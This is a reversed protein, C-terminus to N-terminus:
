LMHCHCETRIQDLIIHKNYILMRLWKASIQSNGVKCSFSKKKEQNYFGCSSITTHFQAGVNRTLMADNDRHQQLRAALQLEKFTAKGVILPQPPIVNHVISRSPFFFIKMIILPKQKKGQWRQKQTGGSQHEDALIYIVSGYADPDSGRVNNQMGTRCISRM